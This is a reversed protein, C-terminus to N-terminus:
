RTRWLTALLGLCLTAGAATAAILAVTPGPGIVAATENVLSTFWDTM